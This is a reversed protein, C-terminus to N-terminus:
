AMRSVMKYKSKIEHTQYPQACSIWMVSEHKRSLSRRESCCNPDHGAGISHDPKLRLVHRTQSSRNTHGAVACGRTSATSLWSILATAEHQLTQAM